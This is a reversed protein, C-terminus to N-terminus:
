GSSRNLIGNKLLFEFKLKKLSESLSVKYVHPNILRKYTDDLQELEKLVQGQIEALAPLNHILEGKEMILNLLPKHFQYDSLEFYKYDFFPHYFRYVSGSTIKESELTLLDAIPSSSTDYFRYVQKVGPNTTKEPNNSVKMTPVMKNGVKKAALKYVGSLSSDNGATVLNTGVGWIDIPAQRTVLQQIIEENLENSAVIKAEPLGAKDLESRVKKSLYELDGSDLRVGFNSIGQKKLQLGVEMAHQIGGHLTDYTDILLICNGPFVEAYKKFAERESAFAMIWSHAQTGKVPIGFIKAALTNSTSQAGGIFAARTASLAGDKGHARRLGFEAIIGKNSALYIRAAKTAILSQFNITNLVLSEVLQVELLNGHVRLIPEQPFVLSGESLAYIDGRFKFRSLYELFDAKFLDLGSLYELDDKSFCLSTLDNLLTELGAFVTFGGAFPQRRFFMDFVVEPNHGLAFFGQMMTLEYLDTFLGSLTYAAPKSKM